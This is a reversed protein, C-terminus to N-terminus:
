GLVTVNRYQVGFRVAAAYDPFFIDVHNGRVGGGTDEAIFVEDFGEILLRSGLPIVRPDVAVVGWRVTTGSRTISGHAGGGATQYSYATLRAPFTRGGSSSVPDEQVHDAEVLFEAASWGSTGRSDFDTIQYWTRGAGDREPGGIVRVRMGEPVTALIRRQTGPGQRVRLGQGGTGAVRATSVVAGEVEAGERGDSSTESDAWALGSGALVLTFALAISVALIAKSRGSDGPRERRPPVPGCKSSISSIHLPDM